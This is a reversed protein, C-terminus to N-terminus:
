RRSARRSPTPTPPVLALNLYFRRQADHTVWMGWFTHKEALCDVRRMGQQRAVGPIGLFERCRKEFAACAATWLAPFDEALETDKLM